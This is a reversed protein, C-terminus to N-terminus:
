RFSKLDDPIEFAIMSPIKKNFGEKKAEENLIFKTLYFISNRVLRALVITDEVLTEETISKENIIGMSHYINLFGHTLKNRNKKLKQQPGKKFDLHMNFLANLSFNKISIIDEKIKKRNTLDFWINDFNVFENKHDLKLYDKILFAIKDLINYFYTFSAKVMEVYINHCKYDLTDILRVRKDVFDLNKGKYRSLILLFRATIYDQKIQNLYSSLHLYQDKKIYNGEKNKDLSIIMSEISEPDGIANNCKQCFNCINLYLKNNFCFEVLFREFKSRAKIQIGSYESKKLLFNKEPFFSEIKKLYNKFGKIDQQNVGLKLAQQILLYAEKLITRRYQPTLAAYYYLAIGKNGLAMGHNAKYYLAKDYCDIADFVRGLHDYCNGLNVWLQSRLMSDKFDYELAKFYYKKALEIESKKYMSYYKNKLRRFSYLTHYGNALNYLASSAYKKGKVIVAMDNKLLNIGEKVISKDQKISGFDILLGSVVYSVFPTPGFNKIKNIITLAKEFDGSLIKENAENHLKILKSELNIDNMKEKM